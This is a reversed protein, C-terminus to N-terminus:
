KTLTVKYLYKATGSVPDAKHGINNNGITYKTGNQLYCFDYSELDEDGYLYMGSKDPTYSENEKAVRTVTLKLYQSLNTINTEATTLRTSLDSVTNNTTEMQSTLTTVADSIKKNSNVPKEKIM